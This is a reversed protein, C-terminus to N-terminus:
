FNNTKKEERLITRQNTPQDYAQVETVATAIIEGTLLVLTEDHCNQQEEELICAKFVEDENRQSTRKESQGESELDDKNLNNNDVISLRAADVKTQEENESTSDSILVDSNINQENEEM